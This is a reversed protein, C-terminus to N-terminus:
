EDLTNIQLWRQATVLEDWYSDHEPFIHEGLKQVTEDMCNFSLIHFDETQNLLEDATSKILEVFGTHYKSSVFCTSVTYTGPEKTKEILLLGVMNGEHFLAKSLRGDARNFDARSVLYFEKEEYKKVFASLDAAKVKYFPYVQTKSHGQYSINLYKEDTMFVAQEFQDRSVEITNVREYDLMFGRRAFMLLLVDSTQGNQDFIATFLQGGNKLVYRIAEDLLMNGLGAERKDEKVYIWTLTWEIDKQMLAVVGSIDGEDELAILAKAQDMCYDPVLRAVLNRENEKIYKFKM